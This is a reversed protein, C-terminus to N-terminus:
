TANDEENKSLLLIRTHSSERRGAKAFPLKMLACQMFVNDLAFEFVPLQFVGSRKEFLEEHQNEVIMECKFFRM